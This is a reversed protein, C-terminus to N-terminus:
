QEAEKNTKARLGLHNAKSRIASLTRGPIREMLEEVSLSKYARLSAIEQESWVCGDRRIETSEDYIAVICKNRDNDCRRHCEADDCGHCCWNRTRGSKAEKPCVLTKCKLREDQM